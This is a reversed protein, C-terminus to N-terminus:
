IGSRQNRSQHEGITAGLDGTQQPLGEGKPIECSFTQMITLDPSHSLQCQQLPLNNERWLVEM